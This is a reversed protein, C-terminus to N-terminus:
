RNEIQKNKQKKDFDATESSRNILCVNHHSQCNTSRFQFNWDNLFFIRFRLWIREVNIIFQFSSHFNRLVITENFTKLMTSHMSLSIQAAKQLMGNLFQILAVNSYMESEISFKNAFTEFKRFSNLYRKVFSWSDVFLYLSTLFIFLKATIEYRLILFVTM